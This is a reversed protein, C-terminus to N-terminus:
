IYIYKPFTNLSPSFLFFFIFFVVFFLEKFHIHFHQTQTIGKVIFYTCYNRFNGGGGGGSSFMM